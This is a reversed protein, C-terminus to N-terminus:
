KVGRWHISYGSMLDNIAQEANGGTRSSLHTYRATTLISHHGLIKQVELLDVGAEILHTAYSHRM